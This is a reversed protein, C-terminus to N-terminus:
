SVTAGNMWRGPIQLDGPPNLSKGEVVYRISIMAESQYQPPKVVFLLVVAGVIGLLSFVLILWKQRFLVFYIDALSMGGAQLDPRKENM